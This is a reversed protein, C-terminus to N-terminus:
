FIAVRRLVFVGAGWSKLMSTRAALQSMKKQFLFHLGPIVRDINLDPHHPPITNHEDTRRTNRYKSACGDSFILLVWEPRSIPNKKGLQPSHIQVGRLVRMEMASALKKTEPM